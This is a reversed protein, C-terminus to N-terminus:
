YKKLEMELSDYQIQLHYIRSRYIAQQNDIDNHPSDPHLERIMDISESFMKYIRLSDKVIKEREVIKSKPNCSALLIIPIIFIRM